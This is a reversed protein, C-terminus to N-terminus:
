RCIEQSSPAVSECMSPDAASQVQQLQQVFYEFPSGSWSVKALCTDIVEFPGLLTKATVIKASPNLCEAIKAVQELLEEPFTVSNMFIINADKFDVNAFSGRVFTPLPRIGLSKMKQLGRCSTQWRSPAVEIGTSNLGHLSALVVTKGTGSGLDFFREGARAGVCQLISLFGEPLIEGYTLDSSAALGLLENTTSDDIASMWSANDSQGEYIIDLQDLHRSLELHENGPGDCDESALLPNALLVQLIALFLM